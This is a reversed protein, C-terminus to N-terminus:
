SGMFFSSAGCFSEWTAALTLTIFFWKSQKVVGLKVVALEYYNSPKKKKVKIFQSLIGFLM